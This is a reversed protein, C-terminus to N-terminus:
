GRLLEEAIRKVDGAEVQGKHTKMIDGVLRGAQKPDGIGLATIRERVLARVAEDDMTKPLYGECFGIEFRIEAAQAAGRDGVKEFEALAKQLQKRYAGIVDLVLADDVEGSAGKATRREQLKTKLMRVVNATRADKGRIAQTLTENLTQELAM